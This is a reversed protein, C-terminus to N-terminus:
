EKQNKSGVITLTVGVQVKVPTGDIDITVKGNGYWGLSGTKFEKPTCTVEGHEGLSAVFPRASKRFSEKM